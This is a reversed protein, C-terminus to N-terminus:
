SPAYDAQEKWGDKESAVSQVLSFVAATKILELHMHRKLKKEFYLPDHDM